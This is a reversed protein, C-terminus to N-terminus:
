AAQSAGAVAPQLCERIRPSRLWQDLAAWRIQSRPNVFRDVDADNMIDLIVASEDSLPQDHVDGDSQEWGGQWSGMAFGRPDNCAIAPLNDAGVALILWPNHMGPRDYPLLRQGTGALRALTNFVHVYVARVQLADPPTADGDGFGWKSQYEEWYKM